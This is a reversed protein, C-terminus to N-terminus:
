ISRLTSIDALYKNCFRANKTNKWTRSISSTSTVVGISSLITTIIGSNLPIFNMTLLSIGLIGVSVGLEIIQETLETYVDNYNKIFEEANLDEFNSTSLKDIELHFADLNDNFSKTKRLQIIDNFDIESLNAPLKLNIVKKAIEIQKINNSSKKRSLIGLDNLKPIDTIIQYDRLDGIIHSLLTMYIAGVDRHLQLGEGVEEGFNMETIFDSFAQSYKGRFLTIPKHTFNKWKNEFGPGFFSEYETKFRLIKDFVEIAETTALSGDQESPYYPNLFDTEDLLRQTDSSLYDLGRPPIIPRLENIYLLAFKLWTDDQVNFTPYYILNKM